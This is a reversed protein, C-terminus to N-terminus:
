IDSKKTEESPLEIPKALEKNVDEKLLNIAFQKLGKVDEKIEQFELFMSKIEFDKRKLDLELSQLTTEPSTTEKKTDSLIMEGKGLVLWDLSLEPYAKLIYEIKSTGIDKVKDLFGNSLGTERYFQSKRIGKYEIFDLIRQVIM